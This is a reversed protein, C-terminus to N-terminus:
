EELIFCTKLDIIFENDRTKMNEIEEKLAQERLAYRLANSDSDELRMM